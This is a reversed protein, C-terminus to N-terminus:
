RNKRIHRKIYEAIDFNYDSLKVVFRTPLLRLIAITFKQGKTINTSLVKLHKRNCKAYLKKIKVSMEVNPNNIKYFHKYYVKKFRVCDEDYYDPFYKKCFDLRYMFADLADAVEKYSVSHMISGPRQFYFYMDFNYVVAKNVNKVYDSLWFSDEHYRGLHFRINKLIDSKYLKNPCMILQSYVMHWYESRTKVEYSTKDIDTMAESKSDTLKIMGMAVDANEKIVAYALTDYMDPHIYDDSDVFGIYEGTAIDLGANRASSLGGNAKHVVTIRPDKEAYSDCIKGSEDTSGDDVLIIELNKYSQNLVSDVCTGVFDQVNYVPVIVSIKKDNM